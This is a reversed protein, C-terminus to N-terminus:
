KAAETAKAQKGAEPARRRRFEELWRRTLPIKVPKGCAYEELSDGHAELGDMREALRGEREYCDLDEMLLAAMAEGPLIGVGNWSYRLKPKIDHFPGDDAGDGFLAAEVAAVFKADAAAIQDRAEGAVAASAAVDAAARPSAVIAAFSSLFGRRTM